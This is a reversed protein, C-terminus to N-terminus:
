NIEIYKSWGMELEILEEGEQFCLIMGKRFGIKSIGDTM